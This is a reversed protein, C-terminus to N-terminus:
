AVAGSLFVGANPVILKQDFYSNGEIIDVEREEDRMRKMFQNANPVRNWNFTYGAAPTLLSPRDPVFILLANKGWIRTYVVSAEATGEPTVTQIARGVLFKSVEFLSAAIETSIQGRQTYKITDIM